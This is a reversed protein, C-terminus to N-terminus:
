IWGGGMEGARVLCVSMVDVRVGELRDHVHYSLVEM